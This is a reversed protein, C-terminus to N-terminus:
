NVKIIKVARRMLTHRHIAEKVKGYSGEGIGDGFLYDGVFKPPKEAFM